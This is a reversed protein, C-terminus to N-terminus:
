LRSVEVGRGGGRQTLLQGWQGQQKVMILATLFPAQDGYSLSYDMHTSLKHRIYNRFFTPPTGRSEAVM